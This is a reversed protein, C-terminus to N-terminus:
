RIRTRRVTRQAEGGGGGRPCPHEAAHVQSVHRRHAGCVQRHCREAVVGHLGPRHREVVDGVHELRAERLDRARLRLYRAFVPRSVHLRERAQVVEEASISPPPKDEMSFTRLTVKGERQAKLADFGENLEGFIDRKTKKM